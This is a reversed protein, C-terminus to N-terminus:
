ASASQESAVPIPKAITLPPLAKALEIDKELRAILSKSFTDFHLYLAFMAITYRLSKPNRWILKLMSPAVSASPSPAEPGPVGSNTPKFGTEPQHRSQDVWM